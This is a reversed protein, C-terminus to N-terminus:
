YRWRSPVCDPVGTCDGHPARGDGCPWIVWPGAATALPGRHYALALDGAVRQWGAKTNGYNPM